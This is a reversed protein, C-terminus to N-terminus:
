ARTQRRVFQGFLAREETNAAFITMTVVYILTFVSTGLILGQWGQPLEPELTLGTVVLIIILPLIGRSTERWYRWMSLGVRRQLLMATLLYGLLVGIGTSLAAGVLGWRKLLVITLPINIAAMLLTIRSKKWYLGKVQLVINRANGILELSYPILVALMVWYSLEYAPGLWLNLFRPGFVILGSLMLLLVLAQVRSIKVMLGTITDGDAGKDLRRVIEPTMIRSIATAFSMFYKNFTVGIVYIGVPAAGLLAGILVSDLKWFIAEAIMSLFIPAAYGGVSKLEGIRPRNLRIRVNLRLSAFVLRALAQFSMAAASVAVISVVGHGSKLLFAMYATSACTVVIDLGRLFIFNETASLLAGVPNLAVLVAAGGGTLLLLIRLTDIQDEAISASFIQGSLWTLGVTAMLVLAGIVSYLSLMRALFGDRAATDAEHAVFFRLVSDNMGFDLIYLYTAMSGVLAFLGYGEVGLSSVMLPTFVLTIVLKVAILVYAMVAGAARQTM